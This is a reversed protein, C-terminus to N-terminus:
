NATKIFKEVNFKSRCGMLSMYRIKGLVMRNAFPRDHVGGMSWLIGVYGNPDCGDLSYKDNLYIATNLAEEPSASWELIKKAWYMRLYGHMIGKKLLVRQCANWFEDHTKAFEFECREYVYERMDFRHAELTERAWAPAGALSKYNGNYLCFNDALEKRVILEELFAEKSEPSVSSKLVEIAVRQSSIQGCHLYKSMGSTSALNPDNKDMAYNELGGEIFDKLKLLAESKVVKFPKEWETLFEGINMYVKRRLTAASFEQKDSIYRAPIINHSDVEFVACEAKQALEAQLNVPNSDVVLAGVNKLNVEGKLMEYVIGNSELNKKLLKMGDLIFEFQRDSYIKEDLSVLVKFPMGKDKSLNYAFLMGWNDELRLERSMVYVVTQGTEIPKDNLKFVRNQNVEHATEFECPVFNLMLNRKVTPKM